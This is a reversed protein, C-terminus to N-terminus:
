KQLKNIYIYRDIFFISNISAHSLREEQEEEKEEELNM